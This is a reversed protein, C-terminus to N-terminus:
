PQRRFPSKALLRQAGFWTMAFVASAFLAAYGVGRWPHQALGSTVVVLGTAFWMLLKSTSTM